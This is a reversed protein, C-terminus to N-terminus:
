DTGPGSSLALFLGARRRLAAGILLVAGIGLLPQVPAFYTLAGSSGLLLLVIKNCTPCGVALFTGFAGLLSRNETESASGEGDPTADPFAWTMGILLSSLAFIVYDAGTTGIERAFIPNPILVTPIGILVAAGLSYLAAKFWYTPTMRGVAAATERWTAPRLTGPLPCAAAPRMSENGAAEHGRAEGRTAEREM